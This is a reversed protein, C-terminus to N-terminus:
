TAVSLVEAPPPHRNAREHGLQGAMSPQVM